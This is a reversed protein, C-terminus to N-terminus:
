ETPAPDQVSKKPVRKVNKPGVQETPQDTSPTEAGSSPESVILAVELVPATQVLGLVTITFEDSVSLGDEKCKRQLVERSSIQNDKVWDAVLIRRRELLRQLDVLNNVQFRM